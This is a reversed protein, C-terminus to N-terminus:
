GRSGKDYVAVVDFGGIGGGHAFGWWFGEFGLVGLFGLVEGSFGRFGGVM